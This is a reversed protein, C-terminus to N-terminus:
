GNEEIVFQKLADFDQKFHLLESRHGAAALRQNLKRRLVLALFSCFVHGVIHADNQQFVQRAELLSKVERFM